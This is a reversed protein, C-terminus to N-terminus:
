APRGGWGLGSDRYSGDSQRRLTTWRHHQPATESQLAVVGLEIWDPNLTQAFAMAAERSDFVRVEGSEVLEVEWGRRRVVRIFM